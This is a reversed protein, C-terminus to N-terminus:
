SFPESVCTERWTNWENRSELESATTTERGAITGRRDVWWVGCWWVGAVSEMM